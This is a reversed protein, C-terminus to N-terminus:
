VTYNVDETFNKDWYLVIVLWLCRMNGAMEPWYYATRLEPILTHM